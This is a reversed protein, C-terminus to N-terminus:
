SSWLKIEAEVEDESYVIVSKIDKMGKEIEVNFQEKTLFGYAAPEEQAPLKMEFTIGRQLEIQELFMGVVNSMLIGRLELVQEAQEKVKPEVCAFVNATRVM